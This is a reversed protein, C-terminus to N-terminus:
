ELTERGMLDALRVVAQRRYLRATGGRINLIAAVRSYPLEGLDRLVIVDRLHPPLRFIADRMREIMERQDLVRRPDPAERASDRRAQAEVVAPWQRLRQRRSRLITIGANVATRYFYAGLHAPREQRGRGAIQCVATQYADLVDQPSGLMRWLMSVVRAGEQRLLALVWQQDDAVQASQLGALLTRLELPLAMVPADSM